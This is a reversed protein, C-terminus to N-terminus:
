SVEPWKTYMIIHLFYYKLSMCQLLLLQHHDYTCILFVVQIAIRIIDKYMRRIYYTHPSYKQVQLKRMKRTLTKNLKKIYSFHKKNSKTIQWQTCKKTHLAAIPDSSITRSNFRRAGNNSCWCVKCNFSEWSTFAFNIDGHFVRISLQLRHTSTILYKKNHVVNIKKDKVLNKVRDLVHKQGFVKGERTQNKCWM